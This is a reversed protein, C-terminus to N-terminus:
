QFWIQARNTHNGDGLQLELRQCVPSAPGIWTFEYNGDGTHVLGVPETSAPVVKAIKNPAPCAVTFQNFTAANLGTVAAGNADVVRFKFTIAQGTPAGNWWGPNLVTDTFGQFGYIVRYAAPKRTSNGAEDEATCFVRVQALSVVNTPTEDCSETVVGSLNDDTVAMLAIVENLVPRTTSLMPVVTPATKDLKITVTESTTGGASSAECTLDTGATETNIVVTDCGVQSTIASEPDTVTWSVTVDGRYWGNNGALGTVSAVVVPATPDNSGITISYNREAIFGNLDEGQITFNYTGPATPTGSLEGAASLTLGAPLSGAVVGYGPSRPVYPYRSGANAVEMSISTTPYVSGVTGDSVSLPNLAFQPAQNYLNWGWCQTVGLARLGCAHNRGTVLKGFPGGPALNAGEASDGWCAASGDFRLGCAYTSDGVLNAFAGTPPTTRGGTGDGWCNVNGSQLLGCSYSAGSIVETYVGATPTAQGSDNNGWCAISGDGRLGCTHSSGASIGEFVGTPANAQGRDNQGWCVATRDTRVACVHRAGSSLQVFSGAPVNTQGFANNGWCVVSNDPRLGCTHASGAVLQFFSGAPATAQGFDDRGWCNASQDARIRCTHYQGAALSGHGFLPRQIAVGLAYPTSGVSINTVVQNTTLNVAAVSAVNRNAIYAFNGHPTISIGSPRRTGTGLDREVIRTNTAVSMVDLRDTGRGVYYYRGNPHVAVGWTDQGISASQSVTNTATNLISVSSSNSGVSTSYVFRGNPHVAIGEANLGISPTAVVARTATNIVYMRANSYDTVYARSGNPHFAIANASPLGAITAVVTNSATSIISLNGSAYNPVWLETGDPSVALHYPDAGVAVTAVVSQTTTDIVSVNDTGISAVYVWRGNPHASVAWPQAGVAITGPLVTNTQTDIVSVSSSGSNPIYAYRQAQAPAAAALTALAVAIFFSRVSM